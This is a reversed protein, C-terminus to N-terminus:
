ALGRIVSAPILNGRIASVMDLAQRTEAVNHARFIRAGLWSAVFHSRVETLTITGGWM